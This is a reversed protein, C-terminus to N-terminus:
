SAEMRLSERLDAEGAARKRMELSNGEDDRICEIVDDEVLFWPINRWVAEEAKQRTTM